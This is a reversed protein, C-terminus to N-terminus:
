EWGFLEAKLGCFRGLGDAGPFLSMPHINMQFLKCLIEKRLKRPILIKILWEPILGAMLKDLQVLLSPGVQTPCIFLGQQSSLRENHVRPLVMVVNEINPEGFHLSRHYSDLDPMVNLKFEEEMGFDVYRIPPTVTTGDPLRVTPLVKLSSARQLASIDLAWVAALEKECQEELAFYLAVYPSYTWDLLRTPAGFHRMASLLEVPRDVSLPIGHLHAKSAFDFAMQGEMQKLIMAQTWFRSLVWDTWSKKFKRVLTSELEWDADAHGRFVWRCALPTDTKRDIRPTELAEVVTQWDRCRIERIPRPEYPKDPAPDVNQIEM